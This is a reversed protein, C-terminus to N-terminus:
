ALTGALLSGCLLSITTMSWRHLRIATPKHFGKEMVPVARLLVWGLWLALVVSGAIPSWLPLGDCTYVLLAWAPVAALYGYSAWRTVKDSGFRVPTTIKGGAADSDTDRIDKSMSNAPGLWICLLLTFAAAVDWRTDGSIWALGVWLFAVGAAAYFPQVLPRTQIRGDGIEHAGAIGAMVIMILILQWGAVFAATLSVVAWVGATIRAERPKIIGVAVPRRSRLPEVSSADAERDEVDNLMNAAAHGAGLAICFLLVMRWDVDGATVTVGFAIPVLFDNWARTSPRTFRLHALLRPRLGTGRTSFDAWAAEMAGYTSM